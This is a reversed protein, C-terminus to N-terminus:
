APSPSSHAAGARARNGVRNNFEIENLAVAASFYDTENENNDLM